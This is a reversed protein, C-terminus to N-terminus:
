ACAWPELAGLGITMRPDQSGLVEFELDAIVDRLPVPSHKAFYPSGLNDSEESGFCVFLLSRRLRPGAALAHAFELVATTGSADDNAGNYINDGNVPLGIGVHDLHASLVLTGAISDTGPLYGIASFTERPETPRQHTTLALMAGDSPLKAAAETRLLLINPVGAPTPVDCISTSSPFLM